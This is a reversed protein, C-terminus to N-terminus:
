TILINVRECNFFFNGQFSIAGIERCVNECRKSLFLSCRLSLIQLLLNFVDVNLQLAAVVSISIGSIKIGLTKHIKLFIDRFLNFPLNFQM